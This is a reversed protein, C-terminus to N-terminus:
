HGAILLEPGIAPQLVVINPERPMGSSTMMRTIASMMKPGRFSGYSPRERPLLMPSNLFAEFSNRLVSSSSIRMSSVASFRVAMRSSCSVAIAAAVVGGAAM